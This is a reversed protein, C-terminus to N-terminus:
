LSSFCGHQHLKKKQKLELQEFTDRYSSRVSTVIFENFSILLPFIPLCVQIQELVFRLGKILAIVCNNAEDRSQCIERLESFLKQHTAKMIEENAPSSLKRLNSLSFELIQGLYDIDLNGSTLVKLYM